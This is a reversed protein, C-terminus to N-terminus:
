TQALRTHYEVNLPMSYLQLIMVWSGGYTVEFAAKLFRITTEAIRSRTAINARAMGQYETVAPWCTDWVVEQKFELAHVVVVVENEVLVDVATKVTFPKTNM